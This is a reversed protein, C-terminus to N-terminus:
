KRWRLFDTIYHLTFDPPKTQRDVAAQRQEVNMLPVSHVRVCHGQPRSSLVIHSNSNNNNNNNCVYVLHSSSKSFVRLLFDAEVNANSTAPVLRYSGPLLRHRCCVEIAEDDCTVASTVPPTSDFFSEDLTLTADCSVQADFCVRVRVCASVYM